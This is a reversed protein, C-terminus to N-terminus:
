KEVVSILTMLVMVDIIPPASFSFAFAVPSWKERSLDHLSVSFSVNQGLNLQDRSVQPLVDRM